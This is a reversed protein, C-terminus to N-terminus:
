NLLGGGLRIVKDLFYLINHKRTRQIDLLCGCMAVNPM